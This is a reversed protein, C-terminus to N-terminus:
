SENDSGKLCEAIKEEHELIDEEELSSDEEFV